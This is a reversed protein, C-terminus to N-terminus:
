SFFYLHSPYVTFPGILTFISSLESVVGIEKGSSRPSLCQAFTTETNPTKRTRKKDCEFWFFESYPYKERLSLKTLFFANNYNKKNCEFWFFESYPYKERLLSFRM